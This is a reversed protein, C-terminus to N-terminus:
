SIIRLTHVKGRICVSLSKSVMQMLTQVNSIFSVRNQLMSTVFVVSLFHFTGGLGDKVEQILNGEGSNILSVLLLTAAVLIGVILCFTHPSLDSYLLPFGSFLLQLLYVEEFGM